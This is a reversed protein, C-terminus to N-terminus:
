WALYADYAGRYCVRIKDNDGRANAWRSSLVSVLAPNSRWGFGNRGSSIIQHNSPGNYARSVRRFSGQLYNFLHFTTQVLLM